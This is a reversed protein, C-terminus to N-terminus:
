RRLALEVRINQRNVRLAIVLTECYREPLKDIVDLVGILAHCSDM